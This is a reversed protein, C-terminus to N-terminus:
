QTVLMYKELSKWGYFKKLFRGIDVKINLIWFLQIERRTSSCNRWQNIYSKSRKVLTNRILKVKQIQLKGQDFYIDTWYSDEWGSNHVISRNYEQM